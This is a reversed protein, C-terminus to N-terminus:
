KKNEKFLDEVKLRIRKKSGGKTEKDASIFGPSGLLKRMHNATIKIEWYNKYSFAGCADNVCKYVNERETIIGQKCAPCDGLPLSLEPKVKFLNDVKKLVLNATYTKPDSKTSELTHLEFRKSTFGKNILERIISGSLQIGYMTKHIAFKCKPYGTCGYLKGKDIIENECNPCTGLVIDSESLGFVKENAM